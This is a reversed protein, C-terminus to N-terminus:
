SNHVGTIEKERGKREKWKIDEGKEQTRWGREARSKQRINIEKWKMEKGNITERGKRM